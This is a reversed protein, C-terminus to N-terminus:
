QRPLPVLPLPIQPNAAPQAATPKAIQLLWLTDKGAIHTLLYNFPAIRKLEELIQPLSAASLQFNILQQNTAPDLSGNVPVGLKEGLATLLRYLPIESAQLSIRDATVNIDLQPAAFALCPLIWLNLLLLRAYRM